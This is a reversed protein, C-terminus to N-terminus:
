GARRRTVRYQDPISQSAAPKEVARLQEVSVPEAFEIGMRERASWRCICGVAYGPGFEISFATGPPVDVLGEIMAGSASINRIRAAYRHGEHCLTVTRLMTRRPARSSKLGRATAHGGQEGLTLL